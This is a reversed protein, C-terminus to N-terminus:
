GGPPPAHPPCLWGPGCIDVGLTARALPEYMAAWWLEVVLERWYPVPPFLGPGEPLDGEYLVRAFDGTTEPTGWWPEWSFGLIDVPDDAATLVFTPPSPLGTCVWTILDHDHTLSPGGVLDVVQREPALAAYVFGWYHLWPLDPGLEPSGFYCSPETDMALLQSAAPADTDGEEVRAIDPHCGGLALAFVLTLASAMHAKASSSHTRRMSIPRRITLNQSLLTKLSVTPTADQGVAFPARVSIQAFRSRGGAMAFNPGYDPHVLLRAALAAFQTELEKRVRLYPM